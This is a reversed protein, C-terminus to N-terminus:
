VTRLNLLILERIKIKFNIDKNIKELSLFLSLFLCQNITGSVEANMPQKKYAGQGSVSGVSKTHQFATVSQAVQAPFSHIRINARDRVVTRDQVSQTM